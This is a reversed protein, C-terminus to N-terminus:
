EQKSQLILKLDFNMTTGLMTGEEPNLSSKTKVSSLQAASFFVVKNLENFNVVYGAIVNPYDSCEKLEQLQHPTIKSKSFKKDSTFKTDICYSNGGHFLIFDFPTAVRIMRQSSIMKAGMPIKICKFGQSAAINKFLIEFRDGKVKAIKGARIKRITPM